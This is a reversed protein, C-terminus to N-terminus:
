ALITLTRSLISPTSFMTELSSKSTTSERLGLYRQVRKISHHWSQQKEIRDKKQKERSAQKKGKQAQTMLAIKTRFAALSRDSPTGVAGPEGDLQFYHPPVNHRLSEAMESNDSYGLYRPQPNGDNTFTVQFSGNAGGTPLTLATGIALNIRQLFSEVQQTPVLLIPQLNM